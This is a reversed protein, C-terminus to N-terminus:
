QHLAKTLWTTITQRIVQDAPIAHPPHYETISLPQVKMSDGGLFSYTPVDRFM